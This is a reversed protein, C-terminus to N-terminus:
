CSRKLHLLFSEFEVLITCFCHIVYTKTHKQSLEIQSWRPGVRSWSAGVQGWSPAVQSWSPEFQSWSAGVQGRSSGVQSLIPGVQGCSPELKAGVQGLKAGVQGLKAWSPGVRSWSPGSKAAAQSPKLLFAEFCEAELCLMVPLKLHLCLNLLCGSRGARSRKVRAHIHM